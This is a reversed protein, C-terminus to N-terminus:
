ISLRFITFYHMNSASNFCLSVPVSFMFYITYHDYAAILIYLSVIASFIYFFTQACQKSSVNTVPQGFLRERNNYIVALGQAEKLQKNIRRMDNAVEHARGIESYASMGAVAM